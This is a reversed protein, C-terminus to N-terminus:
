RKIIQQRIIGKETQIEIIYLGTKLESVPLTASLKNVFTYRVIQGATNYINVCTIEADSNINVVDVVPNPYVNFNVNASNDAIGTPIITLSITDVTYANITTDLTVFGEKTLSATMDVTPSVNSFTVEGNIDTNITENNFTVAVNEVANSGDSVKFVIQKEPLTKYKFGDLCFYSPTNMGYDGNDSSSLTFEITRVAGISSLDV